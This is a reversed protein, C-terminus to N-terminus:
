RALPKCLLDLSHKGKIESVQYGYHEFYKLLESRTGGFLSLHDLEVLVAPRFREITRHAGKLVELDSGEADIKIYDIRQLNADRVFDDLTTLFVAKTNGAKVPSLHSKGSDEDREMVMEGPSSFCALNKAEVNDFRNLFINKCLIRYIEEMPEFAYVRGSPGVISAAILSFYGINAGVDIFVGGVSLLEGIIDTHKPEFSGTLLLDRLLVDGAVAPSYEVVLGSELRLLPANFGLYRQGWAILRSCAFRGRPFSTYKNYLKEVSLLFRPVVDEM